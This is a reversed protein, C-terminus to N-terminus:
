LRREPEAKAYQILHEINIRHTETSKKENSSM